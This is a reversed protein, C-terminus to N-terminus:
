WGSFFLVYIMSTFHGTVSRAPEIPADMKCIQGRPSAACQMNLDSLSNRPKITNPAAKQRAGARDDYLTAVRAM